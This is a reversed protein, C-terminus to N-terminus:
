QEYLKKLFTNRHIGDISGNKLIVEMHKKTGYGKHKAFFYEPYFKDLEILQRDRTVKAIISAAAISLSKADGKIISDQNYLCNNIKKNGDVLILVKEKNLNIKEELNKIARNMALFTANLINLKDIEYPSAEGIGIIANKEIINFLYERKKESIKKSDCIKIMEDDYNTLIVASAVVNGALPGRGVEDIGILIKDKKLNEDFKYLEYDQIKDFM